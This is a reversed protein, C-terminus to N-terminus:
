LDRLGLLRRIEQIHVLHKAKHGDRLAASAKGTGNLEAECAELLKALWEKTGLEM